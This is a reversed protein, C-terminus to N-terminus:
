RGYWDQWLLGLSASMALGGLLAEGRFAHDHMWRLEQLGMLAQPAVLMWVAPAMLVWAAPKRLFRSKGPRPSSGSTRTRHAADSGSLTAADVFRDNLLAGVLGDNTTNGATSFMPILGSYMTLFTTVFANIDAVHLLVAVIPSMFFAAGGPIGPSELGLILVPPILTLIGLMSIPVNLLRAVSITVLMVSITACSKNMVTGFVISLEAVERSLGLDREASVVNMALTEYSGGTGFGTTWVAAYYSAIQKWSRRTAIKVLLVLIVSWSTTVLGVWLTTQGYVAMGKLGFKLPIGIALCGVMLPYYWLLKKFVGLISEGGAVLGHAVPHLRPVIAAVYGIAIAGVLTQVLPQDSLLTSLAAAIEELWEDLGPAAAGPAVLPLKTLAPIWMTVYTLSALGLAVYLLLILGFLQGARQRHLLTLRATAGSLIAFIILAAFTVVARPLYTGVTYIAQATRNDPLLLGVALGAVLFLIVWIPLPIRLPLRSRSERARAASREVTM